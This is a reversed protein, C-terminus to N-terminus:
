ISLYRKRIGWELGLTILLVFFLLPWDILRNLSSVSYTITKIEKKGLLDKMLAKSDNMSYVQGGSRKALQYLLGHNAVRNMKEVNMERVLLKGSKQLLENGAKSTATFEYADPPLQGLNAQYYRGNSSFSYNFSEKKSNRLVMNVEASQIAEYSKNYVEAEMEVIENENIIKPYRLRFQSKDNKVSLYHVSAFILENFLDHNEHEAFDRMKWTWLGDGNFCASKIGSNENFLFLPESTEVSGIKQYLLSTSSNSLLHKGFVCKVAPCIELFNQLEPKISFLSFSKNVVPESDNYRNVNGNLRLGPFVDNSGPRIILFPLGQEQCQEVLPKQASGPGHLILLSYSKLNGNFEGTFRTELEYAPNGLLSEKIANVDPHPAQCLLLIKQRKDQVEVVFEQTNNISNNEENLVDLRTSYVNIGITEANLTFGITSSFQDSSISVTSRAKEVGNQMLKLVATKGKLQTAQVFVDVPFVNGLYAIQNHSVKTIKLDRFETTDGSAICYVPFGAREAYSLPIAGKNQIGDSFIVAAGVNRNAYREELHQFLLEFDTEKEKFDPKGDMRVDEGFLVASVDFTEGLAKKIDQLGQEVFSSVATSDKGSRMSSSNDVALVLLPRENQRKITKFFFDCLLLLVLLSTIFRSIQLTILLFPPVEKNYKSRFYLLATFGMAVLVCFIYIYWPSHSIFQTM